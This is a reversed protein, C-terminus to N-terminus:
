GKPSRNQVGALRCPFELGWSVTYTGDPLTTRGTEVGVPVASRLRDMRVTPSRDFPRLQLSASAPPSNTTQAPHCFVYTAKFIQLNSPLLIALMGVSVQDLWRKQSGELKACVWSSISHTPSTNPSSAGHSASDSQIPHGRSVIAMGSRTSIRQWPSCM